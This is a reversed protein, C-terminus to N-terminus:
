LYSATSKKFRVKIPKSGMFRGKGCILESYVIDAQDSSNQYNDRHLFMVVDAEQELAASEHLDSMIPRRDIRNRSGRNFQSILILPCNLDNALDKLKRVSNSVVSNRDEGDSEIRQAHDVLIFSVPKEKHISRAKETIASIHRARNFVHLPLRRFEEVAAAAKIADEHQSFKQTIVSNINLGTRRTVSRHLVDQLNMELSFMLACSNQRKENIRAGVYEFIQQCLATKGIGPPGALVIQQGGRLFAPLGADISAIGTPIFEVSPAEGSMRRLYADGIAGASGDEESASVGPSKVSAPLQLVGM